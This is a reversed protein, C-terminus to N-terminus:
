RANDRNVLPAPVPDQGDEMSLLLFSITFTTYPRQYLNPVCLFTLSTDSLGLSLWGLRPYFIASSTRRRPIIFVVTSSSPRCLACCVVAVISYNCYHRSFIDPDDHHVTDLKSSTRCSCIDYVVMKCCNESDYCQMM